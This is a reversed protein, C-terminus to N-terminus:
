HDIDYLREVVGILYPALRDAATMANERVNWMEKISSPRKVLFTMAAGLRSAGTSNVLTLIEPPLDVSLDDSISRVAMFGTKSERCVQAVALSELDVAIAQHKEALQQKEAVTRVIQDATVLKGVWLGRPPDSEMRMEMRIEQGHTDCLANGVVLDGVKMQPQLAGSFGASLIWKPSHADILAQTGRRAAAFGMGTYIIAIRADLHKVGQVTLKHGIYKRNRECKAVFPKLEMETACVIGIDALARDPRVPATEESQPVDDFFGM